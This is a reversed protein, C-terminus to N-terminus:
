GDGWGDNKAIGSDPPAADSTTLTQAATGETTKETNMVRNGELTQEFKNQRFRSSVNIIHYLGSFGIVPATLTSGGFNYLGTSQNIDIPTRFNVRAHVQGNQYNVSGESNLNKFQTPQASFNGQGSQAIWYPDGIIDITLNIMDTGKTVLDHFLRAARGGETENGGGGKKDTNNTTGSYEARTDQTGAQNTPTNGQDPLLLNSVISKIDIAGGTKAATKKDSTKQYADASM